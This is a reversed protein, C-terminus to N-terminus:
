GSGVAASQQQMARCSHLVEGFGAAISTAASFGRGRRAVMPGRGGNPVCFEQWRHRSRLMRSAVSRGLLTNPPGVSESLRTTAVQICSLGSGNLRYVTPWKRMSPLCALSRSQIGVAWDVNQQVGFDTLFNQAAEIRRAAGSAGDTAHILGLFIETDPSLQLDKLPQYYAADDRERPVPMHIWNIERSLDDAVRNAVAVLMGMDAPEVFHKHGSDGYCLHYGLEVSSPVSEGLRVLRRVIDEFPNDLYSPFVGELVGFEVATDWQVCLEAAPIEAVIAALEKLLAAEYVPEVLRRDKSEVYLQIPALPTPLCVQFRCTSGVTGVAKARAFAAYSAIAADRYGLDVIQLRDEDGEVIRVLNPSGSEKDQMKMCNSDRARASSLYSGPLGIKANERKGMPFGFYDIQLYTPLYSSYMM